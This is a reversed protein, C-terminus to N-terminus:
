SVTGTAEKIRKSRGISRGTGVVVKLVRMDEV